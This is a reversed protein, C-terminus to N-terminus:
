NKTSTSDIHTSGGKGVLVNFILRLVYTAGFLINM